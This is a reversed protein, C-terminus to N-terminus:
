FDSRWKVLPPLSMLVAKPNGNTMLGFRTGRDYLLNFEVYRGRKLLQYERQEDTWSRKINNHIIPLFIDLFAKGVSKTFMFDMEWNNTNLNDFFIGGIGRPEKRHKIYFYDDAQQKFKSYYDPSYKACTKLLTSKLIVDDNQNYYFPTIDIGGGFWYANTYILRTNMHIAPILPSAMHAVLSIGSAWFKSESEAAGPMEVSFQPSFNGWVTSINVGVKEFVKGYLLRMEGGGGGARHWKDKEFYSSPNGYEEEILQFERCIKDRLTAFWKSAITQQEILEM